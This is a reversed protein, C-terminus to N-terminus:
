LKDRCEASLEFAHLLCSSRMLAVLPVCASGREVVLSLM